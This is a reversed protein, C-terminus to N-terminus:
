FLDSVLDHAFYPIFEEPSMSYFIDGENLVDDENKFNASKKECKEEKLINNNDDNM